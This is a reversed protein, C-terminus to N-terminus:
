RKGKVLTIVYKFEEFIHLKDGNDELLNDELCGQAKENLQSLLVGLISGKIKLFRTANEKSCSLDDNFLQLFEM